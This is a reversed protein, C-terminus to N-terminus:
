RFRKVNAGVEFGDGTESSHVQAFLFIAFQLSSLQHKVKFKIHGAILIIINSM